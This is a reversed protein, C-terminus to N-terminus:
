LSNMYTMIEKRVTDPSNTSLTEMGLTTKIHRFDLEVEWRRLYLGALEEKTYVQADLTNHRDGTGADAVRAGGALRLERVEM